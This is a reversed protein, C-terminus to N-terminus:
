PTKPAREDALGRTARERLAQVAPAADGAPDDETAWDLLDLCRSWDRADCAARARERREAPTPAPKSVLPGEDHVVAPLPPALRPHEGSTRTAFYAAVAAAVIGAVVVAAKALKVRRARAAKKALEQGLARGKARVAAPDLGGQRLEDDLQADDMALIREIEDHDAEQEIRDFLDAVPPKGNGTSM